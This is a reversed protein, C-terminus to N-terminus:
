HVGASTRRVGFRDAAHVEGTHYSITNYKLCGIYYITEILRNGLTWPRYRLHSGRERVRTQVDCYRQYYILLASAHQLTFGEGVAHVVILLESEVSTSAHPLYVLAQSNLVKRNIVKSNIVKSNLVKSNIVKSNLVWSISDLRPGLKERIFHCTVKCKVAVGTTVVALPCEALEQLWYLLVALLLGLNRHVETQVLARVLRATFYLHDFM